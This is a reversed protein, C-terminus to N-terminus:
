CMMDHCIMRCVAFSTRCVAYPMRALTHHECAAACSQKDSYIPPLGPPILPPHPRPHGEKTEKRTAFARMHAAKAPAEKRAM